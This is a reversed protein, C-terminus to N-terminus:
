KPQAPLSGRLIYLVALAGICVRIVLWFDGTVAFGIIRSVPPILAYAVICCIIAIIVRWLM